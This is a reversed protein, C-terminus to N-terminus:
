RGARDLVLAEAARAEAPDLLPTAAAIIPGQEGAPDRGPVGGGHRAAQGGPGLGPGAHAAAWASQALAPALEDGAFEEWAAPM